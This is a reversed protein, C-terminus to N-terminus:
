FNMPKIWKSRTQDPKIKLLPDLSNPIAFKTNSHNWVGLEVRGVPPKGRHAVGGPGFKRIQTLNMM